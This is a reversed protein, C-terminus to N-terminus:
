SAFSFCSVQYFLVWVITKLEVFIKKLAYDLVFAYQDPAVLFQM